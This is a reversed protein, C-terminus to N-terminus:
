QLLTQLESMLQTIASRDKSNLGSRLADITSQIQSAKESKALESDEQLKRQAEYILAEANNKIEVFEKEAKDEGSYKQADEIIQDIEEKSRQNSDKIELDKSAGSTKDTAIVKLIGNVDLQFNVEIQPTGRPAPPIGSLKFTGLPKCNAAFDREGQLVNIEVSNQNDIATSFVETKSTPLSTNRPILKTNVGGLTELGLSLPTVDILVIDSTVGGIVSAQIAAGLAVVEDPNITCNAPQELYKQVLEQIIPIRTTGGVLIVHDIDSPSLNAESLVEVMPAKFKLILSAILENLTERSLQTLLHRPKGGDNAIFPLNIPASSVSSLELKAKEAAEKLRQITKPDDRLDINYKKQFGRCLWNMIKNDIDDGGLSSDGGTQIVEFVGDGAELLSVDFTGGGADFVFIISNDSKDFGYALSAATPENIIRQVNLGAISGADKTANRQADDFYAPVTIVALEPKSDFATHYNSELQELVKASLQEPYFDTNLQPCSVKILGNPGEKIPYALSSLNPATTQYKRGILSKVSYYTNQPNVVAQRKAIDGVVFNNQKDIGIVSPTLRAGSSNPLISPQGAVMTAIASNTTGLDIGVGSFCFNKKSLYKTSLDRQLELCRNKKQDDYNKKSVDFKITSINQTNFFLNDANIDKILNSLYIDEM